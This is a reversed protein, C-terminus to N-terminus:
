SNPSAVHVLVESLTLIMIPVQSSADTGRSKLGTPHGATKTRTANGSRTRCPRPRSSFTSPSSALGHGFRNFVSDKSILVAPALFQAVAATGLDDPDGRMVRPLEPDCQRLAAIRPNLYDGVRLPVVWIRTVIRGLAQEADALAVGTDKAVKALAEPLEAEVDEGIFVNSRGTAALSVLISATGSRAVHCASSAITCADTVAVLAARPSVTFTGLGPPPYWPESPPWGGVLAMVTLIGEAM